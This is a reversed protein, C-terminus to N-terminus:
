SIILQRVSLKSVTYNFMKDTFIKRTFDIIKLLIFKKDFLPPLLKVINVNVKAFLRRGNETM